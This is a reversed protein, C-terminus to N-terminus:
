QNTQNNFTYYLEETTKQIKNSGIKTWIKAGSFYQWEEKYCWEAFEIAHRRMTTHIIIEDKDGYVASNIAEEAKTMHKYTKYKKNLKNGTYEVIM